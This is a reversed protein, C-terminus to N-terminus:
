SLLNYGCIVPRYSDIPVYELLSLHLQLIHEFSGQCSSSSPFCQMKRRYNPIAASLELMMLEFNTQFSQIAGSLPLLSASLQIGPYGLVAVLIPLPPEAPHFISSVAGCNCFNRGVM